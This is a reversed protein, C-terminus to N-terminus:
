LRVVYLSIVALSKLKVRERTRLALQPVKNAIVLHVIIHEILAIRALSHAIVNSDRPVFHYNYPDWIKALSKIDYILPDLYEHETDDSNLAELARLMALAEAMEVSSSLGVISSGARRIKRTRSVLLWGIRTEGTFCDRATDVFLVEGVELLGGLGEENNVIARHGFCWQIREELNCPPFSSLPLFVASVTALLPSVPWSRRLRHQPESSRPELSVPTRGPSCNRRRIVHRRLRGATAAFRSTARSHPLRRAAARLVGALLPLTETAARGWCHHRRPSAVAATVPQVIHLLLATAHQRFDRRRIIRCPPRGAAAVFWSNTRSHPLRRATARLVGVLLLSAPSSCHRRHPPIVAARHVLRLLLAIARQRVSRDGALCLLLPCPPTVEVFSSSAISQEHLLRLVYIKSNLGGNFAM